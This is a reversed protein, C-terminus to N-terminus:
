GRGSIKVITGARECTENTKLGLTEDSSLVNVQLGPLVQTAGGKAGSPYFPTPTLFIIYTYREFADKLVDSSGGPGSSTFAFTEPNLSYTTTGFSVSHPLPWLLDTTTTSDAQAGVLSLACILVTALMTLLWAGDRSLQPRLKFSTKWFNKKKM